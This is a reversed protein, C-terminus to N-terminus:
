LKLFRQDCKTYMLRLLYTFTYIHFGCIIFTVKRIDLYIIIDPHLYRLVLWLSVSLNILPQLIIPIMSVSTLTM